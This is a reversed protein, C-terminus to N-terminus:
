PFGGSKARVNARGFESVANLRLAGPCNLRNLSMSIILRVADRDHHSGRTMGHYSLQAIM